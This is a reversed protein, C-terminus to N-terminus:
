VCVVSLNGPVLSLWSTRSSRVAVSGLSAVLHCCCELLLHSRAEAWAGAGPRAGPAFSWLGQLWQSQVEQHSKIGSIWRGSSIDEEKAGSGSAEPGGM